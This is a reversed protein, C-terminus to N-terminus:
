INYKAAYRKLMEIGIPVYELEDEKGEYEMSVFGRYNAEKFITFIKDYDFELEKGDPSLQHIKAHIHPAYQITDRMGKYIDPDQYNGTDLNIGVWPSNIEKILRLTDVATPLFGGDNHPEIALTIGLDEAHAASEKICRVMDPWLKEKDEAPPWGSFIRLVPAGLIYAADLWKKVAVVEEDREEKKPKGFNNGPSLCAVSLQLDTCMKKIKLLYKKDSQPLLDAIIDIGGLGLKKACVEVVQEFTMTKDQLISRNYSWTCLSLKM